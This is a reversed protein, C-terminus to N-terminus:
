ALFIEPYHQKLAAYDSQQANLLVLLSPDDVNIVELETDTSPLYRPQTAILTLYRLRPCHGVQHLQSDHAELEILKAQEELTTVESRELYIVEVTRTMTITRVQSDYATLEITEWADLREVRSHHLQLLEATVAKVRSFECNYLTVEEAWCYDLVPAVVSYFYLKGTNTRYHCHNRASTLVLDPTHDVMSLLQHWWGVPDTMLTRRVIAVGALHYEPSPTVLQTLPTDHQEIVPLTGDLKTWGLLYATSPALSPADANNKNARNLWGILQTGSM